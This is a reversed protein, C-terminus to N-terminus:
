KCAACREGVYECLRDIRIIVELLWRAGADFYLDQGSGDCMVALDYRRAAETAFEISGKPTTRSICKAKWSLRVRLVLGYNTLISNLSISVRYM